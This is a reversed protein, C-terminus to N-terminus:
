TTAFIIINFPLEKLKKEKIQNSSLLISGNNAILSECSSLFFTAAESNGFNLNFGDFKQCLQENFCFVDQEYWDNELM